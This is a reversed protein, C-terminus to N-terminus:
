ESDVHRCNVRTRGRNVSLGPVGPSGSVFRFNVWISERGKFGGGSIHFERTYNLMEPKKCVLKLSLWFFGSNELM